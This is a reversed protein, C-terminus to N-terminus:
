VGARNVMAANGLAGVCWSYASRIVHCSSAEKVRWSRAYTRVVAASKGDRARQLRLRRHQLELRRDLDEAVQVALKAVEHAEELLVAHGAGRAVDGVDVVEEEAVVDVAARVREFRDAQQERELDLVGAADVQQAAVVLRGVDVRQEAEAHLAHLAHALVAHEDPLADVLHADYCACQGRYACACAGASTCAM